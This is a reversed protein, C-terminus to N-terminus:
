GAVAHSYVFASDSCTGPRAKSAAQGSLKATRAKRLPTAPLLLAIRMDPPVEAM